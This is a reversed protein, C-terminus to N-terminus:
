VPGEVGCRCAEPREAALACCVQTRGRAVGLVVAVSCTGSGWPSSFLLFPEILVMVEFGVDFDTSIGLDLIHLFCGLGRARRASPWGAAFPFWAELSM